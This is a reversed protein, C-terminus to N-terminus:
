AAIDLSNGRGVVASLQYVRAYIPDGPTLGDSTQDAASYTAIADSASITRIVTSYTNDSFIDISWAEIAEGLPVSSGLPGGFRTSLRTRRHWTLVANGASDRAVRPNTASYPTQGLGMNTFIENAATSVPRGFSIARQYRQVGLDSIESMVRRLGNTTMLVVRDGVAHAGTAYETGFRARLLGSLRVTDADVMTATRYQILEWRGPAGVAILNSLRSALMATRTVSAFEGYAVDVILDNVNDIVNFGTNALINSALGYTARDTVEFAPEYQIGDLSRQFFAGRWQGIASFREYHGPSNDTDRVIPMDMAEIETPADNRVVSSSYDTDDALSASDLVTADDSILEFTRLMGSENIRSIRARYTSGDFNTLLLVDTPKLAAYKRSVVIPGIQTRSTELDAVTVDVVRAAESPIMVIPIDIVRDELSDTTLRDGIATLGPQYDDNGNIFRGRIRAPVEIDNRRGLPLPEPIDGGESAGLDEYPITVVPSGGRVTYGIRDEEYPEVFYPGCLAEIGARASSSRSIVMGRVAIGTLASVDIDNATLLGTRETLQTVVTSLPITQLALTTKTSYVPIGDPDLSTPAVSHYMVNGYIASSDEISSGDNQSFPTCDDLSPNIVDWSAGNYKYLVGGSIGSPAASDAFFLEGSENTMLVSKSYASSTVPLNITGASALTTQNFLDIATRGTGLCYLYNADACLSIPVYALAGTTATPSAYSVNGMAISFRDIVYTSGNSCSGWLVSGRKAFRHALGYTPRFEFVLGAVNYMFLTPFGTFYYVIHVSEDSSVNLRPIPYLGPLVYTNLTTVTQGDPSIRQVSVVGTISDAQHITVGSSDAFIPGVYDYVSPGPYNGLYNSGGGYGARELVEFNLVPLQGTSGTLQLGEFFVSTVGRHGPVNGVGFFAEYVPDPLQDVGGTYVTMRRWHDSANSDVISTSDATDALTWVLEGYKWVRRVGATENCALIILIDCEATYTTSEVGGGKGESTTTPINRKPSCWAVAGAVRGAGIVYPIPDGEAAGQIPTTEVRPGEIREPPATIAAVTSGAVYGYYAGTPTFGGAVFGIVAGIAGGIIQRSM